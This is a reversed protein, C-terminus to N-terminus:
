ALWTNKSKTKGLSVGTTAPLQPPLLMLHLPLRLLLLMAPLPHPLLRLLLQPLPLPM